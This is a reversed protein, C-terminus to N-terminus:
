QTKGRDIENEVEQSEGYHRELNLEWWCDSCIVPENLAVGVLNFLANGAQCPDETAFLNKCHYCMRIM